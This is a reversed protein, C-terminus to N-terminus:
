TKTNISKHGDKTKMDDVIIMSVREKFRFTIRSRESPGLNSLQKLEGSTVALENSLRLRVDFENVDVTNEQTKVKKMMNIVGSDKNEVYISTLVNFAVHNPRRHLIKMYKNINDNGNITIRYSTTREEDINYIVDLTTSTNLDLKKIKSRKTFYSLMTHYKEYSINSGNKKNKFMLEFEDERKMKDYIDDISKITDNNTLEEFQSKGDYDNINNRPM